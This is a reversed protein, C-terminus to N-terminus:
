NSFHQQISILSMHRGVTPLLRGGDAMTRLDILTNVSHEMMREAEYGFLLNKLNQVNTMEYIGGDSSVVQGNVPLRLSVIGQPIQVNLMNNNIEFKSADCLLSKAFNDLSLQVNNNSLKRVCIHSPHYFLDYPMQVGAVIRDALEFNYRERHM